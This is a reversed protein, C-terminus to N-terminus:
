FVRRERGKLLESLLRLFLRVRTWSKGYTEASPRIAKAPETAAMTTTPGAEAPMFAALEAHRQLVGESVQEVWPWLMCLMTAAVTIRMSIKVNEAALLTGMERLGFPIVVVCGLAVFTGPPTSFMGLPWGQSCVSDLFILGIFLAGFLLGFIVRYKLM